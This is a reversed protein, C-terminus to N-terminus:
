WDPSPEGPLLMYKRLHFDYRRGSTWYGVCIERWHDWLPWFKDLTVFGSPFVFDIVAKSDGFLELTRIRFETTDMVCWIPWVNLDSPDYSNDVIADLCKQDQSCIRFEILSALLNALFVNEALRGESPFFGKMLESRWVASLLSLPERIDFSVGKPLHNAVYIELWPGERQGYVKPMPLQMWDDVFDLLKSGAAIAMGLAGVIYLMHNGIHSAWTSGGIMEDELISLRKVLGFSEKWFDKKGAEIASFIPVFGPLCIVAANIIAQEWDKGGKHAAAEGEKKWGKLQDPIPQCTEKILKRWALTDEQRIIELCRERLDLGGSTQFVSVNSSTVEEECAEIIQTVINDMGVDSRVALKSALIPSFQTVEKADINHWIPLIVKRREENEKGVLADLEDQPWEKNFFAKSLVVVGYRSNSLGQDIKRRLSDGLKLEFRDYWVNLGAERLANALPEVFEQKDESAHCIFVDYEVEL